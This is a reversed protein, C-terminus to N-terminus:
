KQLSGLITPLNTLIGMVLWSLSTGVIAKIVAKAKEGDQQELKQLRSDHEKIKELIEKNGEKVANAILHELENYQKMQSVERDHVQQEVKTLREDLRQLYEKDTM